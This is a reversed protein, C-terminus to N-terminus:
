FCPCRNPRCHNKYIQILGQQFCAGRFFIANKEESSCVLDVMYDSIQNKGPTPHILYLELIMHELRKDDHERALGYLVTFVTNVVIDRSKEKGILYISKKARLNAESSFHYHDRWYGFSEVLFLAAIERLCRAPRRNLAKIFPLVSDIFGVQKFRLVLSALAAIRRTPFNQPRLRFFIWESASLPIFESELLNWIDQLHRVQAHTPEAPLLGSTGFLCAQSIDIPKELSESIIAARLKGFSCNKALKYFATSNKSYGLTQCLSKFFIQDWDDNDRLELHRDAKTKLRDLGAQLIFQRKKESDFKELPCIRSEKRLISVTTESELEESSKELVSDLNFVPICYGNQKKTLFDPPSEGTVVHLIVRNYNEDNHHGHSYWFHPRSHIEIDGRLMNGDIIILADRFDPGADTNLVGRELVIIERGDETKLGSRAFSRTLWLQFLFRESAPEKLKMLIM